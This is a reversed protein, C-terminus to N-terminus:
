DFKQGKACVTTGLSPHFGVTIQIWCIKCKLVNKYVEDGASRRQITTLNLNIM